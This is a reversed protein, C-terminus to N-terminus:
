RRRGIITGKTMSAYLSVRRGWEPTIDCTAALNAIMAVLV